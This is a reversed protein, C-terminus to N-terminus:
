ATCFGLASAASGQARPQPPPGPVLVSTVRASRPPPCRFARLLPPHLERQPDQLSGPPPGIPLHPTDRHPDSGSQSPSFGGSTQPGPCPHPTVGLGAVSNQMIPPLNPCPGPLPLDNLLFLYTLGPARASSLGRQGDWLGSPIWTHGQGPHTVHPPRVPCTNGLRVGGKKVQLHSELSGSTEHAARAPRCETQTRHCTSATSPAVALTQPKPIAEPSLPQKRLQTPLAPLM